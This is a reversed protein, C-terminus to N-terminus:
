SEDKGSLERYLWAKTMKWDRKITAASLGLVSATEEITLGGFYRLEVIQAQQEDMKELRTLADDLALLDVDTKEASILISENLEINEATGGRKKRHRANAYNVLIRRMMNASIAFFHERNQWDVRSQEVLNLYAEHILATTQLTHNQRERRLFRHAQRHLEEYVLPLLEDLARGNGDSWAQLLRSIENPRHATEPM